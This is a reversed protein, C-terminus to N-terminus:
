ADYCYTGQAYKDKCTGYFCYNDPDAKGPIVAPKQKTVGPAGISNVTKLICEKYCPGETGSDKCPIKTKM